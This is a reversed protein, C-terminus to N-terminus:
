QNRLDKLTLFKVFRYGSCSKEKDNAVKNIRKVNINTYQSAETQNNFLYANKDSDVAFIFTKEGNTNLGMDSAAQANEQVTVWRLNDVNNNTKCGDIHDVVPKNEPNPIFAEAVLRHVRPKKNGIHCRYYGDTDIFQKRMNSNRRFRGKNSIWFDETGVVQRWEEGTLDRYNTRELKGRKGQKTTRETRRGM